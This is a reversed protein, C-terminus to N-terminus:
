LGGIVFWDETLSNDKLWNENLLAMDADDVKCDGNLDGLLPVYELLSQAAQCSDNYVNITVTDSGSYEGDSVLLELVYEGVASLTVSTDESNGNEIVATGENPESVVSWQVTTAEEDIVTADLNGTRSGDQLWTAIDAGAEVRPPLNDVEFSFIPGIVPFANSILYTDVAWYYRKKSQTQVVVSTVDQKGVLQIAAPDTFYLLADLDDTFYVDVTVPEDPLVRDLMTWSLVVEGPPITAGDAPIPDLLATASLTTKGENTVNYDLNFKGQDKYATIRGDNIFTQVKEKDNGNLVLTGTTIDISGSESTLRLESAYITGGLLNVTGTGTRGPVVLNDNLEITGGTMNLTGTGAWGIQLSGTSFLGGSMNLIGHGSQNDVGVYAGAATLSGGSIDLNTTFGSNGVRLTECEAIIGDEIECHTDEPNDISVPDISTPITDTNWNTATSWLQDLGGADWYIIASANDFLVLPLVLSILCTTKKFM